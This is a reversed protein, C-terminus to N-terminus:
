QNVKGFEGADLGDAAVLRGATLSPATPGPGPPALRPVCAAVLLATLLALCVFARVSAGGASAGPRRPSAAARVAM